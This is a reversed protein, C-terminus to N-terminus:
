RHMRLGGTPDRNASVDVRAVLGVGVIQGEHEPQGAAVLVGAVLKPKLMQTVPGSM